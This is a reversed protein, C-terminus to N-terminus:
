VLEIVFGRTQIRTRDISVRCTNGNSLARPDIKIEETNNCAQSKSTKSTITFRYVTYEEKRGTYDPDQCGNNIQMTYPDDLKEMGYIHCSRLPTNKSHSIDSILQAQSIDITFITTELKDFLFYYTPICPEDETNTLHCVHIKNGRIKIPLYYSM